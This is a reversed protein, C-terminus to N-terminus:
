EKGLTDRGRVGDITLIHYSTAAFDYGDAILYGDDGFPTDRSWLGHGAQREHRRDSSMAEMVSTLRVSGDYFLTVPMSRYSHNFYYPECGYFSDNCGVKMNQLWRRELVHTKLTPYMVHGFSPVRYGGPMEWPATWFVGNGDDAFAQPNFLGAASLCYSTWFPFQNCESPGIGGAAEGGVFEGPVEFCPEVKDLVIRDKPAYFVPDHWRGNLYNSMPKAQSAFAFWGWGDCVSGLFPLGPFNIPQFLPRQYTDVPVAWYTCDGSKTYGKGAFIPPHGNDWHNWDYIADSYRLVDGGYAGLNDRLLTVHRDAWDAAYTKHAVGMQRLNSKSTNVMASDRAKGIAPLLIGLLLAIISVVVLLEIITFGTRPHTRM